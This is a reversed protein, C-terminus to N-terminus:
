GAVRPVPCEDSCEDEPGVGCADCGLRVPWHECGEVPAVRKCCRDGCGHECEVGDPCVAPRSVAWLVEGFKRDVTVGVWAGDVNVLAALHAKGDDWVAVSGAGMAMAQRRLEAMAEAKEAPWQDDQLPQWAPDGTLRVAEAVRAAVEDVVRGPAAEDVRTITVPPRTLMRCLLRNSRRHKRGFRRTGIFLRNVPCELFDGQHLRRELRAELFGICLMGEKSRVVSLWLTTDIFYHEHIRGTDSGCDLCLFKRRSM